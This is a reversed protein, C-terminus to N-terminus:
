VKHATKEGVGNETIGTGPMQGTATNSVTTDKGSLYDAYKTDDNLNAQVTQQYFVEIVSIPTTDDANKLKITVEDSDAAKVLEVKDSINVAEGNTFANFSIKNGNPENNSYILDKIADDTIKYGNLTASGSGNGAWVKIKWQLMDTETNFQSCSKEMSYQHEYTVSATNDNDPAPPNDKTSEVTCSNDTAVDYGNADTEYVIQM